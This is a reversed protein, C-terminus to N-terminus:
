CKAIYRTSSTEMTKMTFGVAKKFEFNRDKSKYYVTTYLWDLSLKLRFQKGVISIESYIIYM